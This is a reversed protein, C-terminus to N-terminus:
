VTVSGTVSQNKSLPFLSDGRLQCLAKKNIGAVDIPLYIPRM